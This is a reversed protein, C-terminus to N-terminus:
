RNKGIESTEEYFIAWGVNVQEFNVISVNSCPTFHESNVIFVSSRLWHRREPKKIALKSCIECRTRTNRNNVKFMYNGAPHISRFVTRLYSVLLVSQLKFLVFESWGSVLM